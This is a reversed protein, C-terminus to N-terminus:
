KKVNKKEPFQEKERKVNSFTKKKRYWELMLDYIDLVEPCSWTLKWGGPVQIRPVMLGMGVFEEEEM